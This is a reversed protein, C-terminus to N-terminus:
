AGDAQAAAASRSFRIRVQMGEGPKSEVQVRALANQELSRLILASLRGPQPWTVGEPLGIGDDAVLVECGREDVVSHLTITGGDRGRFAYKLANTLLENVVLGAPMAVNVSVPWADVKLELRIGAAAHARMVASAVQSLYTGLDVEAERTNGDLERYLLAVAEVRGALRDFAGDMIAGRAANRAEIRILATVLQLNNKVRHQMERLLLDSDQLRQAMAEREGAIVLSVDVLALLRFAPAGSEDEILSAYAEVLVPEAGERAIRFCGLRDQGETVAIGLDPGEGEAEGPLATWGQGELAAASMGTLREAAPNAYAICEGAQQPTAVILAVPVHDLFLRFQESRLAEALEPLALLQEVEPPKANPDDM